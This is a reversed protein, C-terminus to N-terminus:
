PPAEAPTQPQESKETAAGGAREGKTNLFHNSPPPSLATVTSGNGDANVIIRHSCLPGLSQKHTRM